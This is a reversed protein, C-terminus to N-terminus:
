KKRYGVPGPLRKLKAISEKRTKLIWEDILHHGKDMDGNGIRRVDEPSVAMEGDSLKVPVGGGSAMHPQTMHPIAGLGTARALHPMGAMHPLATIHPHPIGTLHPTSIHPTGPISTEHPIPPMAASGGFARHQSSHPFIRKLHEFGAGSNGEGLSSVVDAPIIHSGDPVTTAIADARGPTSGTLPGVHGGNARKQYAAKLAATVHGGDARKKPGYAKNLAIALAQRYPKGGSTEEAKINAGINKKGSLLPMLKGIPKSTDGAKLWHKFEEIGMKTVAGIRDKAKGDSFAKHYASLAEAENDYGLMCKHEDFKKTKADVQDVVFVDRSGPHPGIYVDVHDGDAGETRRLYGYHDPLTVSWKKGDSGTGSRTSGKPNEISIDLGHM